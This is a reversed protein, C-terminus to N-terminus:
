WNRVGMIVEYKLAMHQKKMYKAIERSIFNQMSLSRSSM